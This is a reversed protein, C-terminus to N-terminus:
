IWLKLIKGSVKVNKLVPPWQRWPSDQPSSERELSKRFLRRREHEEPSIVPPWHPQCFKSNRESRKSAEAQWVRLATQDMDTELRQRLRERWERERKSIVPPWRRRQPAMINKKLPFACIPQHQDKFASQDSFDFQHINAVASTSLYIPPAWTHSPGCPPWCLLSNQILIFQKLGADSGNASFWGQM